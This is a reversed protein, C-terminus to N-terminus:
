TFPEDDWESEDRVDMAEKRRIDEETWGAKSLIKAVVANKARGYVVGNTEGKKVQEWKVEAYEERLGDNEKLVRKLDTYGRFGLMGDPDEQSIIYVSRQPMHKWDAFKMSLRGKIGGNGIWRYHEPGSPEWVLAERCAIAASADPVLIVIDINPKAALHSISTSGIHTISIYPANALHLYIRIQHAFLAFYAPWAASPPQVEIPRQPM